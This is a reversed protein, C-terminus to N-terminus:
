KDFDKFPPWCNLRRQNVLDKLNEIVKNCNDSSCVKTDSTSNNNAIGICQVQAEIDNEFRKWDIKSPEDVNEYANLLAEVQPRKINFKGLSSIGFSSLCRVFQSKTVLNSNLPDM